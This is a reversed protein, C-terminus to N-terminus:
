RATVSIGPVMKAKHQYRKQYMAKRFAPDVHLPNPSPNGAQPVETSTSASTSALGSPTPHPNNIDVVERSQAIIDTNPTDTPQQIVEPVSELVQFQSTPEIFLNSSANGSPTPHPNNIDVVERSQAIIDTNPTDTPQQIVEPVSELVQFQSTPEIFLNSSANEPM